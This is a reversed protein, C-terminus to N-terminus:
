EYTIYGSGLHIIVDGNPFSITQAMNVKGDKNFNINHKAQACYVSADEQNSMAYSQKYLYNNLFYYKNLDIERYNNITIVSFTSVILLIVLVSLLSYGKKNMLQMDMM